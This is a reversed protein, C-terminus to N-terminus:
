RSLFLIHFFFPTIIPNRHVQLLLKLKCHTISGWAGWSGMVFGWIGLDGFSGFGGFDWGGGGLDGLGLFGLDWFGLGVHVSHCLFVMKKCTPSRPEWCVPSRMESAGMPVMTDHVCIDHNGLALDLLVSRV